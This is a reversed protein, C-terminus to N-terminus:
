ILQTEKKNTGLIEKIKTILDKPEVQYKLIYDSAGSKLAEQILENQGFNSLIAVPIAKTQPDAKLTKLIDNGSIDPLVEDLLILDPTETKVKDLGDQGTMATSTQYGEKKLATEFVTLVSQDDDVM